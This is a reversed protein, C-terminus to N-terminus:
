PVFQKVLSSFSFIIPTASVIPMSNQRIDFSYLRSNISNPISFVRGFLCRRFSESFVLVEHLFNFYVESFDGVPQSWFHSSRIDLKHVKKVHQLLEVLQDFDEPPKNKDDGGYTWRLGDDHKLLAQFQEATRPEEETWKHKFRRFVLFTDEPELHNVLTQPADKSVEAESLFINPLSM